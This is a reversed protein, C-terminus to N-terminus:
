PSSEQVSSQRARSPATRNESAPQATTTGPTIDDSAPGAADGREGQLDKAMTLRARFVRSKVTGVAVGLIDAVEAYPLRCLDCLVIAVRADEPLRALAAQVTVSTSVADGPDPVAAARSDDPELLTTRHRTRRRGLDIAANVAVRYLWTSFAAEGQFTGARRLAALFADQTADQADEVNNLMRLCVAYVKRQHRSVLEAFADPDGDLHRALLAVDTADSFGPQGGDDAADPPPAAREWRM